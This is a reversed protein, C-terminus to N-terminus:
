PTMDRNYCAAILTFRLGFRKRRNRYRDSVIKFRKLCAI